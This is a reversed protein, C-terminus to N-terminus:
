AGERTINKQLMMSLGDPSAALWPMSPHVSLGCSNIADTRGLKSQHDVYSKIAVSEHDNGYCIASTDTPM